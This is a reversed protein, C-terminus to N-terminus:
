IVGEEFDVNNSISQVSMSEMIVQGMESVTPNRFVSIVSLNLNL